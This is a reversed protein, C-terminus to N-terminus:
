QLQAHGAEAQKARKLEERLWCRKAMFRFWHEHEWMLCGYLIKPHWKWWPRKQVVAHSRPSYNDEGHWAGNASPVRDPVSVLPRYPNAQSEIHLELFSSYERAKKLEEIADKSARALTKNARELARLTAHRESVWVAALILAAGVVYCISLSLVFTQPSM